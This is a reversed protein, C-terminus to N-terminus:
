RLHCNKCDSSVTYKMDHSYFIEGAALGETQGIYTIYQNLHCMTGESSCTNSEVLTGTSTHTKIGELASINGVTSNRFKYWAYDLRDSLYTQETHFFPANYNQPFDIPLTYVISQNDSTIIYPQLSNSAGNVTVNVTTSNWTGDLVMMINFYDGFVPDTTLTTNEHEFLNVSKEFTTKNQQGSFNEFMLNIMVDVSQNSPFVDDVEVFVSVTNNNTGTIQKAMLYEGTWLSKNVYIGDYGGWITNNFIYPDSLSMQDYKSPALHCSYCVDKLMSRNTKNM